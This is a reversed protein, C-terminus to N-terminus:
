RPHSRRKIGVWRQESRRDSVRLRADLLEFAAHRRSVTRDTLRLDCAPSQGVLVRLAQGPAVVFRQGLDPGEAVTLAFSAAGESPRAVKPALLTDVEFEDHETM